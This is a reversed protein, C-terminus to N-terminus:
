DSDLDVDLLEMGVGVIMIRCKKTFLIQHGNEHLVEEEPGEVLEIASVDAVSTWAAGRKKMKFGDMLKDKTDDLFYDSVEAEWVKVRQDNGVSIIRLNFQGATRKVSAIKLATLAAAHANPICLSRTATANPALSTAPRSIITLGLSNDDGGTATLWSGHALSVTDMSLISSQHVRHVEIPAQVQRSDALNFTSINLFGNTGAALTHSDFRGPSTRVHSSLFSVQMLCFSGYQIERLTEFRGQRRKSAPTYRVIKAKGNSYAIAILYATEHHAGAPSEDSIDKLDFSMIRADSDEDEKPMQDQLVVGVDICPVDFTLKWVYFEECGASSFLYRGSPSFSLHQLGATHGKLVSLSQFVTNRKLQGASLAFLQINTDEAGTAVIPLNQSKCQYLGSCGAIAKIERGHGGKVIFSHNSGRLTRWNFNGAQTWVFTRVVERLAPGQDTTEKSEARNSSDSYSWTRHSGGCDVSFLTCQQTENWVVFSTSRFGYLILDIAKTDPGIGNSTFYSGEINPGFLPSSLHLTSFHPQNVGTASDWNIRHVAYCGDRGTTLIHITGNVGTEAEYKTGLIKISTICDEGHVRRFCSSSAALESSKSIDFYLALAGTRSGLVLVKTVPEYCSATITFTEPLTLPAAEIESPATEPLWLIFAQRNALCAIMCTPLGEAPDPQHVAHIWSIAGHLLTSLPILQYDSLQLIALSGNQRGLIVLKRRRLHCTIMSMKFNSDLIKSWNLPNPGGKTSLLFLEGYETTALCEEHTLLTYLRLARGSSTIEKFSKSTHLSATEADSVTRLVLQGDAGGTYVRMSSEIRIQAFSWINKGNHHRDQMLPALVFPQNAQADIGIKLSWLQCSADEGRSLLFVEDQGSVTQRIDFIIDWIRSAHGWTAALQLDERHGTNGFGTLVPLSKSDLFPTSQDCDSIDWVRITRDDSCSAMLRTFNGNLALEQSINVGFISGRHGSYRHRTISVWPTSLNARQCTWTIIEGFVTGSAIIIHNANVIKIDGSYLFSQPGQIKLVADHSTQGSDVLEKLSVELLTNHSTLMFTSTASAQSSSLANGQLIGVKLVWDQADFKPNFFVTPKSLSPQDMSSGINLAGYRVWRGGWVVINFRLSLTRPAHESIVEIGQIPQAEFILENVNQTGAQDYVRLWPGQGVLIFVKLDCQLVHLATVPLRSAEPSLM